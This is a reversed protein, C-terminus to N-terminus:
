IELLYCKEVEPGLLRIIKLRVASLNLARRDVFERGTIKWGAVFHMVGKAPRGPQLYKEIPRCEAQLTHWKLKKNLQQAAKHADAECEFQTQALQRLAKDAKEAARGVQKDLRKM